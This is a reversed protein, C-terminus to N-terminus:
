NFLMDGHAVHFIIIGICKLRSCTQVNATNIYIYLHVCNTFFEVHQFLVHKLGPKVLLPSQLLKVTIAEFQDKCTYLDSQDLQRYTIM